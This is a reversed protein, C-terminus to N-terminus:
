KGASEVRDKLAANMANFGPLLRAADFLWLAAGRLSEGQTFVTGNGKPALVFYHEVTLFRPLIVNGRWRLERAPSAVVIIPHFVQESRGRGEHNEVRQGPTLDGKLASIEPNWLPYEKTDTLVDWVRDPPADINIQTFLESHKPFAFAFGAGAALMIGVAALLTKLARGSVLFAGWRGM